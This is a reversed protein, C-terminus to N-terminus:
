AQVGPYHNKARGTGYTLRMFKDYECLCNQVDHAELKRNKWISPMTRKFWKILEGLYAEFAPQTIRKQKAKGDWGLLWNLGRHSGPGLPAWTLRDEWAGQPWVHRLDAVIQGAIFSGVGPVKMLNAHVARMSSDLQLLEPHLYLTNAIRLVTTIKSPAGGTGNIIYAGTFVKAGTNKYDHLITDFRRMNFQWREGAVPMLEELTPPWNLLRALAASAMVTGADTGPPVTHHYWHELLQRSVKDDMRRVNCFRVSRLINDDTWPRPKGAEKAKRVKERETVWYKLQDLRAPLLESM